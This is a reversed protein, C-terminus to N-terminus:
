IEEFSGFIFGNGLIQILNFKIIDGYFGVPMSDDLSSTVVKKINAEDAFAAIDKNYFIDNIVLLKAESDLLEERIAQKEHTANVMYVMAGLKNLAYFSIIAEPTSLMAMDVVDGEKVGLEAFSKAANDIREILERYTYKRGLYNIAWFDLRNKSSEVLLDYASMKPILKEIDNINKIELLKNKLEILEEKTM